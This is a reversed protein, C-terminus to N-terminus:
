KREKMQKLMAKAEREIREYDERKWHPTQHEHELWEVKEIGIKKILNIRYEIANGSKHQNCPVCQRHINDLNFRLAPAAGRSRYHGADYAGGHFRGCSICPDNKDRERVVANVAKQAKNAFYSLPKMDELKMRVVKRDEAAAVREAKAKASRQKAISELAFKTQCEPANCVRGPQMARAPKYLTSCYRCRPM